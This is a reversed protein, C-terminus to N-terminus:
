KRFQTPCATRFKLGLMPFVANALSWGLQWHNMATLGPQDSVSEPLSILLLSNLSILHCYGTHVLHMLVCLKYSVSNSFLCGTYTVCHQHSIDRLSLCKVCESSASTTCYHFGTSPGVGHQLIFVSIDEPLKQFHGINICNLHRITSGIRHSWGCLIGMQWTTRPVVSWWLICLASHYTYHQKKHHNTHTQSVSLNWEVECQLWTRCRASRLSRTIWLHLGLHRPSSRDSVVGRLLANCYHPLPVAASPACPWDV